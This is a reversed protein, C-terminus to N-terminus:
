VTQRGGSSWPRAMALYLPVVLLLGLASLRRGRRVSEPEFSLRVEHVGAPTV